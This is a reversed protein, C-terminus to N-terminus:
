IGQSMGIEWGFFGRMKIHGNMTESISVLNPCALSGLLYRNFVMLLISLLM